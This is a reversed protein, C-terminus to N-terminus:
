AIARGHAPSIQQERRLTTQGQVVDGQQRADACEQRLLPPDPVNMRRASLLAGQRAELGDTLPLPIQLAADRRTVLREKRPAQRAKRM